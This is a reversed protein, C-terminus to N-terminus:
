GKYLAERTAWITFFRGATCSVPEIGPDPLDGPFPFPLGSWYEQRSFGMSLPGPPSCDMPNCLAPCWQTVSVKVESWDKYVDMHLSVSVYIHNYICAFKQSHLKRKQTNCRTSQDNAEVNKYTFSINTKVSLNLKQHELCGRQSNGNPAESSGASTSPQEWYNADLSKPIFLSRKQALM